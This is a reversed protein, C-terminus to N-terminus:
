LRNGPLKRPDHDSRPNLEALVVSINDKGGRENASAVLRYCSEMLPLNHALENAIDQASLYGTLGDSCALIVCNRDTNFETIDPKIQETTGIAQTIINSINSSEAKEPSLEGSDILEQVLSHDRTIQTLVSDQWLYARSDGIHAVLVFNKWVLGLVLTSGMKSLHAPASIKYHLVNKNALLIADYVAHRLHETQQAFGKKVFVDNPLPLLASNISDVVMQAATAGGSYGGMGDAVIFFAYPHRADTHWSVADQNEERIRGIDCQSAINCITM